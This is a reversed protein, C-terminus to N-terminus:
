SISRIANVLDDYGIIDQPIIGVDQFLYGETMKTDLPVNCSYTINLQGNNYFEASRITPEMWISSLESFQEFMDKVTDVPQRTIEVDRQFLEWDRDGHILTYFSGTRWDVSVIILSIKPIM